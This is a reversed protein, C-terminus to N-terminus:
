KCAKLFGRDLHFHDHHAANFEPGIAVRFYRCAGRHVNRLFQAEPGTGAWHKKVSVSRGDAFTFGAIDVANATAHQSRFGQWLKTGIVNRCSYAGITQVSAIRSGFTNVAAPQVVHTLWMAVAAGMECTVKDASIQAGGASALRVANQWGCGDKYPQDAIIVASLAPAKLVAACLAPDHRLAALRTDLFWPAPEAIDLAMYSILLPPIRGLRLAVGALCVLTVPLLVRTLLRRRTFLTTRIM